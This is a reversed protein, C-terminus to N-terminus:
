LCLDPHDGLEHRDCRGLRGAARRLRLESGGALDLLSLRGSADYQFQTAQGDPIDVGPAPGRQRRQPDREDRGGGGTTHVDVNRRTTHVRIHAGAARRRAASSTATPTTPSASSAGMQCHRPKLAGTPIKSSGMTRGAADSVSDLFGDSGYSLSTMLGAQTASIMRGRSNYTYSIPALDGLQTPVGTADDVVLSSRRGAASIATLTRSPADFTTTAVRGNVAATDTLTRLSVIDSTSTLTVTRSTTMTM